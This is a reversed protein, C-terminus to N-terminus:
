GSSYAGGRHRGHGLDVGHEPKYALHTTGNKMKAIKAEPDTRPKEMRTRCRRAGKRKRDFRALDESGPTDIGSEKAM